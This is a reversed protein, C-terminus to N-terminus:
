KMDKVESRIRTALTTSFGFYIGAFGETKARALAAGKTRFETALEGTMCVQPYVSLKSLYKPWAYLELYKVEMPPLLFMTSDRARRLINSGRRVSVSFKEERGLVKIVLEKIIENARTNQGAM